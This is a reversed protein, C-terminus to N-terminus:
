TIIIAKEEEVITLSLGRLTVNYTCQREQQVVAINPCDDRSYVHWYIEQTNWIYKVRTLFNLM